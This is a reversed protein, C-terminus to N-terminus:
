ALSRRTRYWVVLATIALVPYYAMLGTVLLLVLTVSLMNGDGTLPLAAWSLMTGIAPVVALMLWRWRGRTALAAIITALVAYIPVFTLILEILPPDTETLLEADSRRM